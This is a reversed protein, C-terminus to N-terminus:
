GKATMPAWWSPLLRPVGASAASAVGPPWGAAAALQPTAAQTHSAESPRSSPHGDLAVAPLSASRCGEPAHM